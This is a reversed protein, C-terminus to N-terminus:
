WTSARDTAPKSPEIQARGHDGHRDVFWEGIDYGSGVVEDVLDCVQVGKATLTLHRVGSAPPGEVCHVTGNATLVEVAHRVIEDDSPVTLCDDAKTSDRVARLLDVILPTAFFEVAHRLDDRGEAVDM